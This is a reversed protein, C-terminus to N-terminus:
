NLVGGGKIINLNARMDIVKESVINGDFDTKVYVISDTAWSSKSVFNTAAYGDSEIWVDTIWESGVVYDHVISFRQQATGLISTGLLLLLWIFKHNTLSSKYLLRRETSTKAM